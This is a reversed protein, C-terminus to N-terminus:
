TNNFFALLEADSRYVNSFRIQDLRGVFTSTGLDSGIYLSASGATLPGCAQSAVQVGNQWVDHQWTSGSILKRRYAFHIWTDFATDAGVIQTDYGDYTLWVLKRTGGYASTWDLFATIRRGSTAMSNGFYLFWEPFTGSRGSPVYMWGEVTCNGYLPTQLAAPNSLYGYGANNFDACNAGARRGTSAVIAVTGSINLTLNGKSDTLKSGTNNEMEWYAITNADGLFDITYAVSTAEPSTGNRVVVARVRTGWSTVSFPGTYLNSAATPVTNDTTYYITGATVTTTITVTVPMAATTTPTIVPAPLVAQASMEASPVSEGFAGVAVVQFYYVGSQISAPTFDYYTPNTTEVYVGGAKAGPSESYYIRYSTATSDRYWGIVFHTSLGTVWALNVPATINSIIAPVTAVASVEASLPGEGAPMVTAAAYYVRQGVTRGTHVYSRDVGTIKNSSKTVGPTLSWYLNHSSYGSQPAFSVVIDGTDNPAASLRPGPLILSPVLPAGTTIMSKARLQGYLGSSVQKFPDHSDKGSVATSESPQVSVLTVFADPM